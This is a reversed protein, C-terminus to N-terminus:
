FILFYGTAGDNIFECPMWNRDKDSWYLGLIIPGAKDSSSFHCIASVAIYTYSGNRQIIDEPQDDFKVLSNINGHAMDLKTLAVHSGLQNTETGRYIWLAATPLDVAIIRLNFPTEPDTMSQDWFRKAKEYDTLGPPLTLHNTTWANMRKLALAWPVTVTNGGPFKYFAVLNTDNSDSPNTPFPYGASALDKREVLTYNTAWINVMLNSMISGVLGGLDFHYHRSGGQFKVFDEFTLNSKSYTSFFDRVVAKLKDTQEPDLGLNTVAVYNHNKFDSFDTIDRTNVLADAVAVADVASTFTDNEFQKASDPSQEVFAFGRNQNTDSTAPKSQSAQDVAVTAVAATLLVAGGLMAALKIKAWTMLRVTSKILALTSVGAATGKAAAITAVSAAASAPASQVSNAGLSTALITASVAVGRRAFFKRLKELARTVRKKAAPENVKLAAAVEMITHGEFFKLVIADREKTGLRSIAEDLIPALREWGTEAPSNNITSQMMAEREWYARRAETRVFTASAMRATQYLWGPLVTKASLRPAKQALIIFVAQTVDLAKHSDRVHRFAVSYVLNIHRNVLTAFAEQSNRLVYEELLRMDDSEPM